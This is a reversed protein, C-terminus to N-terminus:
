NIPALLGTPDAYTGGPVNQLTTDVWRSASILEKNRTFDMARLYIGDEYVDVIYGESGAYRYDLDTDEDTGDPIRPISVSPIHVSRFGESTDVNAYPHEKTEIDFQLHSHGHFWVTNKYHTLLSKFVNMQIQGAGQWCYNFYLGGANGCTEANGYELLVHQFIFCRKNRNEELTKYLWQLEDTTFLAEESKIGLMIFVDDGHTFTYYMPDGTYAQIQQEIEPGHTYTDHNGTISRVPIGSADALERYRALQEDSGNNTLDGCVAVFAAGRKESRALARAFDEEATYVSLHVDSLAGFSYPAPTSLHQGHPLQLIAIGAIGILLLILWPYLRQFLRQM